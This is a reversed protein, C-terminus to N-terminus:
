PPFFLSNEASPFYVRLRLSTFADVGAPQAWAEVVGLRVADQPVEM